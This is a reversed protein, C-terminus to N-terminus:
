KAPGTDIPACNSRGAMLCDELKGQQRLSTMLYYGAIVILVTIVLGILAGRRSDPEHPDEPDNPDSAMGAVQRAPATEALTRATRRRAGLHRRECEGGGRYPARDPTSSLGLTRDMM